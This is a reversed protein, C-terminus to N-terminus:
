PAIIAGRSVILNLDLDIFAPEFEVSVWGDWGDRPHNRAGIAMLIAMIRTHRTVRFDMKIDTGVRRGGMIMCMVVIVVVVVPVLDLDISNVGLALLHTPSVLTWTRDSTYEENRVCHVSEKKRENLCWPM